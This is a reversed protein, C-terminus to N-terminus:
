KQGASTHALVKLFSEFDQDSLGGSVRKLIQGCFFKEDEHNFVQNSMFRKAENAEREKERARQQEREIAIADAFDSLVPAHRNNGIIGDCVKKFWTGSFSGVEQWLLAAREQPFSREGFTNTIRTVQAIFEQQTM